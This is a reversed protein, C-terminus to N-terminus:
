RTTPRLVPTPVNLRGTGTGLQGDGNDGTCFVEGDKMACTHFRGISLRSYGSGVVTPVDVSESITGLGLQGEWNRGWSWWTGGTRLGGRTFTNVTLSSWDAFAVTAM